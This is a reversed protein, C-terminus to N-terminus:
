ISSLFCFIKTLFFCFVVGFTIVSTSTKCFNEFNKNCFDEKLLDPVLNPWLSYVKSYPVTSFSDSFSLSLSLSFSLFLSFSPSSGLAFQTCEFYILVKDMFRSENAILVLYLRSCFRLYITGSLYNISTIRKPFPFSNLSIISCWLFIFISAKSMLPFLKSIIAHSSPLRSTTETRM